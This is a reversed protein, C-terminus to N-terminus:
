SRELARADARRGNRLFTFSAIRAYSFSAKVSCELIVARILRVSGSPWTTVPFTSDVRPRKIKLSISGCSMAKGEVLIPEFAQIGLRHLTPARNLM